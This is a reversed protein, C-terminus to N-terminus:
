AKAAKQQVEESQAKFRDFEAKAFDRAEKANAEEFILNMQRDKKQAEDVLDFAAKAATCEASGADAGCKTAKDSEKATFDSGRSALETARLDAADKANKEETRKTKAANETDFTTKVKDYVTKKTDVDRKM